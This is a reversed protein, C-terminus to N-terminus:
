RPPRGTVGDDPPLDIPEVHRPRPPESTWSRGDARGPPASGAGPLDIPAVDRPLARELPAFPPPSAYATAGADDDPAGALHVVVPGLAHAVVLMLPGWTRELHLGMSRMEAPADDPGLVFGAVGALVLLGLSALTGARAMGTMPTGSLVRLTALGAVLAATVLSGWFVIPGLTPYSGPIGSLSISLCPGGAQCIEVTRLGIGVTGGPATVEFWNLVLTSGVALAAYTVTLVILRSRADLM